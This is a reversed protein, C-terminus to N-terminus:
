ARIEILAKPPLDSFRDKGTKVYYKKFLNLLYYILAKRSDEFNAEYRFLPFREEPLTKENFVSIDRLASQPIDM